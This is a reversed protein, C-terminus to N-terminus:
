PHFGRPERPYAPSLIEAPLPLARPQRGTIVVPVTTAYITPETLADLSASPEDLILLRPQLLLARAICLRRQGGSLSEGRESLEKDLGDPLELIFEARATRLVRKM